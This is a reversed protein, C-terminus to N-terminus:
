GNTNEKKRRVKKKKTSIIKYFRSIGIVTFVSSLLFVGYGVYGIMGTLRYKGESILQSAQIIAYILIGSPAIILFQWETVKRLVKGFNRAALGLFVFSLWILVAAIIVVWTKVTWIQQVDPPLGGATILLPILNM